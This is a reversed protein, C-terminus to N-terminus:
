RSHSNWNRSAELSLSIKESIILERIAETQSQLDYEQVIDCVIKLNGEPDKSCVSDFVKDSLLSIIEENYFTISAASFATFLAIKIAKDTM